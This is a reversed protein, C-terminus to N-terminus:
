AARRWLSGVTRTYHRGGLRVLLHLVPAPVEHHLARLIEPSCGDSLWAFFNGAGETHAKRSSKQAAKFERSSLQTDAFPDMQQEEHALHTLLVHRLWGVAREATAVGAASPDDGLVAM